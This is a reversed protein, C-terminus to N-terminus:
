ILVNNGVHKSWGAPTNVQSCQAHTCCCHLLCYNVTHQSNLCAQSFVLVGELGCLVVVNDPKQRLYMAMNGCLAFVTHLSPPAKGVTTIPVASLRGGYTHHMPRQTLNYVAHTDRHRADLAARLSDEMPTWLADPLVEPVACVLVRSTVYTVDPGGRAGVSAQVHQVVRSGKDKLNKFL